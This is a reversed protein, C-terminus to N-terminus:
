WSRGVNDRRRKQSCPADRLLFRRFRYPTMGSRRERLLNTLPYEESAALM